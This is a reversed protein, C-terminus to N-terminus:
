VHVIFFRFLKTKTIIRRHYASAWYKIDCFQKFNFTYLPLKDKTRTNADDRINDSMDAMMLGNSIVFDDFSLQM